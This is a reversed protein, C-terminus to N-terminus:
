SSEDPLPLLISQLFSSAVALHHIQPSSCVDLHSTVLEQGHNIVTPMIVHLDYIHSNELSVNVYSTSHYSLLILSTSFM